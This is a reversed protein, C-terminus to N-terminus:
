ATEFSKPQKLKQKKELLGLTNPDGSIYQSIQLYTIEFDLSRPETFSRAIQPSIQSRFNIEIAGTIYSARTSIYVSM